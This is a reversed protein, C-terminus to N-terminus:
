DGGTAGPVFDEDSLGVNFEIRRAVYSGLLTECADDTYSFCARPVFWRADIYMHQIRDSYVHEDDGQPLRREFVYCPYEDFRELGLFALHFQPNTEARECEEVFLRLTNRFGFQDIPRRSAALVDPAHIYRNVGGPTLLGLVGSPRVVAFERPGRTGRGVVFNVWDAGASGSRWRVDVSFPTERFKIAMEQEAGLAGGLRERVFFTCRYDLISRDYHSICRRLFALPDRRALSLDVGDSDAVKPTDIRGAESLLTAGVTTTAPTRCGCATVIAAGLM